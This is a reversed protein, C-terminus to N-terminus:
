ALDTNAFDEGKYLLPVGARKAMAYSFCDGMNLRAPHGTGKGYRDSASIALAAHAELIPEVEIGVERIFQRALQYSHRRSTETKRSVALATEYLAVTSTTAGEALDLITLFREREPERTLIAVLASADLFM